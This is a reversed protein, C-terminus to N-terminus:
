IFQDEETKEDSGEFMKHIQKTAGVIGEIRDFEIREYGENRLVSLVDSWFNRGYVIIVDKPDHSFIVRMSGKDRVCIPNIDKIGFENLTEIDSEHISGVSLYLCLKNQKM